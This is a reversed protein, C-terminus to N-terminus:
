DVQQVERLQGATKINHKIFAKKVRKHVDEYFLEEYRGDIVYAKATFKIAFNVNSVLAEEMYVKIPKGWFVYNSSAISEHILQEAVLFNESCGIYFYFCSMQDLNGANASSVAENLFLNNPITIQNDNLDIMRVSRLGIAVVEGYFGKFTIRDGVQFPRDFLLILGAMLSAILDRSSFSVGFIILAILFPLGKGSIDFISNVMFFFGIAVLIFRSIVSIQKFFLRQSPIKEGLGDFSKRTFRLFFVTVFLIVIAPFIGWVKVSQLIDVVEQSFFTIEGM